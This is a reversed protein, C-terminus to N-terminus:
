SQCGIGELEPNWFQKIIQVWLGGAFQQHPYRVSTSTLRKDSRIMHHHRRTPLFEVTDAYHDRGLFLTLM